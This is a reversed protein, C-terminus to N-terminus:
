VKKFFEKISRLGSQKNKEEQIIGRILEEPEDMALEFIQLVPVMIQNTLYHLYDLKLKNKIIFEPTEIKEGQLKAKPNVIYAYRIRENSQPKNGPDREAIRDALVKHAIQEPNKYYGKLTKSVIFFDLEFKGELMLQVTKVFFRAAKDIDQKNLILDIIGGYVYKVIPANDRRKLVIGMCKMHFKNPDDEYLNGVYRKKTILVLPWLVKEYELNQPAGLCKSIRKGADDGLKISGPLADKGKLINGQEDRVIFKIFISDTDGYVVDAEYNELVFDRAFLLRDRGTATTSAAIKKYCIASTSAGCQGYLSNATVKYALQQGDYVEKKFPDTEKKMLKKTDKRTQLLFQLIRPLIGKNGDPFQAYRCVEVGSKVKKKAKKKGDQVWKFSDYTVDIYEIGPLNDYKKDIVISDHSINREIMSSPYLSNYDCVTIPDQDYIGPTPDLVIAGEYGEDSANEDKRVVPILMNDKRCEKAVLSFIKIGQGRMFIYSLPVSCVNSMALNNSLISLKTVIKNVLACDQLCYAAVTARDADSGKQLRFIDQPGVDDKALRWKVSGDLLLNDVKKNITLIDNEIKLIKFKEGDNYKDNNVFLTIFNNESLTIHGKVKLKNKNIEVVKDNIFDEAVFDLKYSDLKHDRQVVKMLDFQVRGQTSVYKLINDGLASSALTKEMYESPKNVLRGLNCFLNLIKLEVARDYIYKWDFGFINYGTIVDPDLTQIFKVFALLLDKENKYSEVTSNKIDDCGNLTIIHRHYCDLEGYKQITIGIQIVKDGEVDPFNDNLVTTIHELHEDKTKYQTFVSLITKSVKEIQKINPKKNKKTFVNNINYKINHLDVDKTIEFAQKLCLEIFEQKEEADKFKIKRYLDLIDKTLKSYDKIPVPFDGHSSDCEIDFSAQTILGINDCKFNNINKWDTTIEIQCRSIKDERIVEYKGSDIEIWGGPNVDRIHFFRLLPEINTEYPIFKIKRKLCDLKIPRYFIKECFKMIISNRFVLRIFKFKKFNSFNYMKQRHVIGVSLLDNVMSSFNSDNIQKTIYSKLYRTHSKKWEIYEPIEIFFYPTFKEVNVCVSQGKNNVGFLKINYEFLQKEEGNDEEDSNEYSSDYERNFTENNTIWDICQIQIKKNNSINIKNRKWM